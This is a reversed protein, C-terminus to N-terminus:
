GKRTASLLQKSIKFNVVTFDKDDKLYDVDSGARVLGGVAYKKGYKKKILIVKLLGEQNSKDVKVLMECSTKNVWYRLIENSVPLQEWAQGIYEVGDFKGM